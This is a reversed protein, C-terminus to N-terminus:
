IKKTIARKTRMNATCFAKKRTFPSKCLFNPVVKILKATWCNQDYDRTKNKVCSLGWFLCNAANPAMITILSVCIQCHPQTATLLTIQTCNWKETKKRFLFDDCNLKYTLKEWLNTYLGSIISDREIRIGWNVERCFIRWNLALSVRFTFITSWIFKYIPWWLKYGREM